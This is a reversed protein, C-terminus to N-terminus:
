RATKRRWWRKRSQEHRGWAWVGEPRPILSLAEEVARLGETAAFDNSARHLRRIFRSRLQELPERRRDAVAVLLEARRRREPAPDWGQPPTQIQAFADDGLLDAIDRGADDLSSSRQQPTAAM